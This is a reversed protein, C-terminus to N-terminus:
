TAKTTVWTKEPLTKSKKWPLLVTPEIQTWDPEEGKIILTKIKIATMISREALPPIEPEFDFPMKEGM